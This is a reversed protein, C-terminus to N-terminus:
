DKKILYVDQLMKRETAMQNVHALYSSPPGRQYPLMGKSNSQNENFSLGMSQHPAVIGRPLANFNSAPADQNPESATPTIKPLDNQNLNGTRVLYQCFDLAANSQADKKNTSNGVGVYNYGEVRVM